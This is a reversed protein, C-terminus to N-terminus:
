EKPKAQGNYNDGWGVVTGDAKLALSHDAGASIAIYENGKPPTAQGYNNDGWGVISGDSKLALAHKGGASIAVFDHGSPPKAKGRLNLGWGVISGDSKLALSYDRGAAIAIFDNGIPPRLYGGDDSGWGIIFGDVTLALSHLSGAAIAIFNNGDPPTAQGFRNEGWCTISGDSRLALNHGSGAAIAIYDNGDPPAAQGFANYGWGIISGDAKLALSYGWGTTIDIYDNGDPPVANDYDNWGWGVITGNTKIALNTSSSPGAAIKKINTLPEGPGKASGYRVREGKIIDVVKLKNKEVTQLQNQFWQNSTIESEDSFRIIYDKGTTSSKSGVISIFDQATKIETQKLEWKNRLHTIAQEATHEQGNRIFKADNIDRLSLILNEIKENESLKRRAYSLKFHVTGKQYRSKTLKILELTYIHDGIAFNVSDNQGMPQRAVIVNGYRWSVSVIVRDDIIFDIEIVIRNNSGPLAITSLTDMEFEVPEKLEIPAKSKEAPQHVSDSTTVFIYPKMKQAPSLEYLAANEENSLNTLEKLKLQYTHGEAQFNVSDDQRMTRSTLIVCGDDWSLSAMVQGNMIKDITILIRDNSDPLAITSCQNIRFEVPESLIIPPETKDAHPFVLQGAKYQYWGSLLLFINISLAGTIVFAVTLILTVTIKLPKNLKSRLSHIAFCISMTAIFTLLGAWISYMVSGTLAMMTFGFDTGPNKLVQFINTTCLIFPFPMSVILSILIFRAKKIVIAIILMAVALLFVLCPVGFMRIYFSTEM